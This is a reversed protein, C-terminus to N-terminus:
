PGNDIHELVSQINGSSLATFLLNLQQNKIEEKTYNPSKLRQKNMSKIQEKFNHYDCDDSLASDSDSFEACYAM